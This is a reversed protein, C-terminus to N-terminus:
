VKELRTQAVAKHHKPYGADAHYVSGRPAPLYTVRLTFSDRRDETIKSVEARDEIQMWTLVGASNVSSRMQM